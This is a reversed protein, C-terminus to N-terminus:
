YRGSGSVKFKVQDTDALTDKSAISGSGAVYLRTLSPASVYVKANIDHYMLNPKLHVNLM